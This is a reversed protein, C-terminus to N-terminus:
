KKRKKVGKTQLLVYEFRSMFRFVSQIKKNRSLLRVKNATVIYGIGNKRVVIGKM